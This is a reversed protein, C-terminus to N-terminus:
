AAARRAYNIAILDKTVRTLDAPRPDLASLFEKDPLGGWEDAYLAKHGAACVGRKVKLPDTVGVIM